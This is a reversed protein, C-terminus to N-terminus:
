LAETSGVFKREDRVFNGAEREKTAMGQLVHSRLEGALIKLWTGQM